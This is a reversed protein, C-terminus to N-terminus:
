KLLLYIFAAGLGLTDAMVDAMSFMMRHAHCAIDGGICVILVILAGMLIPTIEDDVGIYSLLAVVILTVIFTTICRVIQRM